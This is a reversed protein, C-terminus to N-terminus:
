SVRNKIKKNQIYEDLKKTDHIFDVEQTLGDEFCVLIKSDIRMQPLYKVIYKKDTNIDACKLIEKLYQYLHESDFLEFEEFFIPKVKFRLEKKIDVCEFIDLLSTNYKTNQPDITKFSYVSTINRLLLYTNLSGLRKELLSLDQTALIFEFNNERCIDVDPLSKGNLVKQAEDIFITVPSSNKYLISQRILRNYISHNLFNLMQESFDEVNIIVINGKQLSDVIDFEDSYFSEKTALSQLISNLHYLVGFKGGIESEDNMVHYEELNDFRQEFNNKYLFLTNIISKKDNSYQDIFYDLYKELYPKIESIKKFFNTIAKASKVASFINNITPYFEKLNNNERIIFFADQEVEQIVKFFMSFNKLLHYINNFLIYASQTWYDDEKTGAISSFMSELSKDTTYKLIDINEGWPKGIEFVNRLKKNKLALVKVQQHLNGKFDYILLGHNLKIRNEINPLIFGSTKGSGTQGYCIANTFTSNVIVSDKNNKDDNIFGITM